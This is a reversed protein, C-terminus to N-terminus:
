PNIAVRRPLKSARVLARPSSLSRRTWVPTVDHHTLQKRQGGQRSNHERSRRFSFSTTATAAATAAAAATVVVAARGRAASSRAARAAGSRAAVAAALAAGAAAGGAAGAAASGAASAAALGRIASYQQTTQCRPHLPKDSGSDIRGDSRFGAHRRISPSGSNAIM